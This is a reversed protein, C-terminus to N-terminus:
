CVREAKLLAREKNLPDQEPRVLCPGGGVLRCDELGGPFKPCLDVTRNGPGGLLSPM